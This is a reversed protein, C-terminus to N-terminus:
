RCRAPVQRRIRDLRRHRDLHRTLDQAIRAGPQRDDHHARRGIPRRAVRRLGVGRQSADDPFQQAFAGDRLHRVLGIHGALQPRQADPRRRFRARRRGHEADPAPIRGGPGIIVEEIVLTNHTRRVLRSCEKLRRGPFRHITLEAEFPASLRVNEVRPGPLNRRDDVVRRTAIADRQSDPERAIVAHQDRHAFLRVTESDRRGLDM